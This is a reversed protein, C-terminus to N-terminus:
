AYGHSLCVSLCVFSIGFATYGILVSLGRFFLHVGENRKQSFMCLLYLVINCSSDRAFSQCCDSLNTGSVATSLARAWSRSLRIESVLDPFGSSSGSSVDERDPIANGRKSMRVLTRCDRPRLSSTTKDAADFYM